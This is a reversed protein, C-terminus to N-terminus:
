GQDNYFRMAVIYGRNNYDIDVCYKRGDNQAYLEGSETAIDANMLMDESLLLTEAKLGIWNIDKQAISITLYKKGNKKSTFSERSKGVIIYKM